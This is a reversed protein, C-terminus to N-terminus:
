RMVFTGQYGNMGIDWMGCNGERNIGAVNGIHQTNEPPNVINLGMSVKGCRGDEKFTKEEEAINGFAMRRVASGAKVAKRTSLIGSM